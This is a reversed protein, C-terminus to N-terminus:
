EEGDDTPQAADLAVASPNRLRFPTTNLVAAWEAITRTTKCDPCTARRNNRKNNAQLLSTAWRCNGPSYNGDSDIRDLSTGTPPEGMDALFNEFSNKWRVCVRIGRGGYHPYNQVRPNECRSKM